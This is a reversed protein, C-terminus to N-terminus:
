ARIIIVENNKDIKIITSPKITENLEANSKINPPVVYSVSNKIHWNINAYSKPAPQGSINASTSVIPKGYAELVAMCFPHAQPIRIAITGDQAILNPALNKAGNYIITTPKHSTAQQIYQLAVAPVHSVYERLMNVNKCLVILAKSEARQKIKYIKGVAAKNTADCGLGWVTDTPYLIADGKNLHSITQVVATNM